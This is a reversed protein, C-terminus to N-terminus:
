STYPDREVVRDHTVVGTRRSNAILLLSILLGIVGVVILIWGVTSWHVVTSGITSRLDVAFALIAGVAILVLSTGIGM